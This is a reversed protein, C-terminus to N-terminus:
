FAWNILCIIYNTLSETNKNSMCVRSKTYVLSIWIFCAISIMSSAYVQQIPLSTTRLLSPAEQVRVGELRVQRFVPSADYIVILGFSQTPM